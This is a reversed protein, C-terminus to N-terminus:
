PEYGADRFATQGHDHPDRGLQRVAATITEAARTRDHRQAFHGPPPQPGLPRPEREPIAYRARYDAIANVGHQWIANAPDTPDPREGLVTTLHAPVPADDPRDSKNTDGRAQDIPGPDPTTDPAATIQQEHALPLSISPVEPETRSMRKALQAVTGTDTDTDTDQGPSRAAYIMTTQRARTLGVYSGEQTAHESVILHATDSTQGQAPFPHQVYALRVDAARLQSEDLVVAEGDALGLRVTRRDADVAQIRAPTGNHIPTARDPHALTRRVQVEDGAHLAYPRGPVEVGPGTLEGDRRRLAQARANLADLQDNSTQAILLTRRGARRDAQGASLAGDEALAQEATLHVRGRTAYGELAEETHGDRFRQQDRRDEALVARVNRSLIAHGGAQRAATEIDPWLGGAGVPRSQHPDGVEILRAGSAAVAGFLRHQERTSALAAEDHIVTTREDLRETAAQIAAHLGATSYAQCSVGGAALDDALRHAALGATSTVIIRRGDQHHAWAAATLVTSKGTGAQGEIVSLQRDACALCIAQDQESTLRQGGRQYLDYYLRGAARNVLREPIPAVRGESLQEALRVTARESARHERTSFTADAHRVLAGGARLEGLAGLAEEIPLGAATELAVARAERADFRAHFETLRGALDEGPGLAPRDAARLAPRDAARLAGVGGATMGRSRATAAWAADLDAHSAVPQKASRTMVTAQRDQAPTLQGTERLRALTAAAREGVVGGMTVQQALHQEQDRVRSEIADRVQRHRSSWRDILAQPVGELEFYRGARGTGRCIGFGLHALERALECRYAAGLERGHRLWARSDIAVVRGDQRVAGHVLVHSHLQPDPVRGAVARATTHLWSTAIVTRPRAHVVGDQGRVRIMAVQEVSYAVARGVAREHAAEVRGRLGPGAIAWVASVSKPASFTADIAAVQGTAGARRLLEGTDPRRVAMLARLQEGSVAMAPDAGVAGAGTVWRGPAEVRDGDRLYYDGLGSPRSRGELYDAYGAAAGATVKAVTLM